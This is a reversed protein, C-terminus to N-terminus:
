GYHCSVQPNWDAFRGAPNERGHWVHIEYFPDVSHPGVATKRKLERGFLRPAGAGTWDKEFVIHEVGVLAMAGDPGPEYMLVEPAEPDLVGDVRGPHIYHRGMAGEGLHYICGFLPEFGDDVAVQFDAYRGAAARADELAPPKAGFVLMPMFALVVGFTNRTLM